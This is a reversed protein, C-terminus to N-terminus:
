LAPEMLDSLRVTLRNGFIGVPVPESYEYKWTREKEEFRHVVIIKSDPDAIWYERVGAGYYKATKIYRDRTATAPSTVEAVLDPAGFLGFDKLKGPDCVVVLDPEVMTRNDCDLQVDFPAMFVECSGHHEEIFNMFRFSLRSLIRQHIMGPAGMELFHGDILEFRKDEPLRYYDELTFEGQNKMTTALNGEVYKEPVSTKRKSADYPRREEMVASLGTGVPLIQEASEGSRGEGFVRCLAHLAAPRPHKTIGAFIKRVTGLPVGSREAIQENTLGSREKMLRLEDSSIRRYVTM